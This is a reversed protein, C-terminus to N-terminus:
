TPVKDDRRVCKKVVTSKGSSGQLFFLLLIEWPSELKPVYGNFCQEAGQSPM